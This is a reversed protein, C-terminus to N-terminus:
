GRRDGLAEVRSVGIFGEPMPQSPSMGACQSTSGNFRTNALEVYPIEAEVQLRRSRKVHEEHSVKDISLNVESIQTEKIFYISIEQKTRFSTRKLRM